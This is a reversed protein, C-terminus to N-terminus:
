KAATPPPAPAAPPVWAAITIPEGPKHFSLIFASLESIKTKGLVPGWTPMGKAPVGATITETIEHPTGGHVWSQDILNPGIKGRLDPEHCSACMTSFTAKGNAVATADTSMKWLDDDSLNANPNQAAATAIRKLEAEIRQESTTSTGMSHYIFWYVLAFVISGHLTWLWWNPLRKDFEQIGDYTHPRLPDEPTNPTNM